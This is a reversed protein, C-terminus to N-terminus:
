GRPAPDSAPGASDRLRSKWMEYNERLRRAASYNRPSMQGEPSLITWDSMREIDYEGRQGAKLASVHFPESALTADVAGNLVRHVEFWLHEREGATANDVDYALKVIRPLNLEAFEEGLRRFVDLTKRAREAMLATAVTSFPTVIPGDSVSAAFRSPVPKSRLWRTLIGGVPDCLVARRGSHAEDPDRLRQHVEGAEAHFRDVPVFRVDGGPFALPFSATDPQIAGELAAFAAARMPDSCNAVFMSSPELVDMDFAGLEELGHTHLWRVRGPNDPDQVAHMAFLAEVDLDADHALEDDLMARSWLLTSTGDIAIAGDPEMLARLWFLLAKRDKLVQKQRSKVRVAITSQGLKASAKEADTLGLSVDVIVEPLPAPQRECVIDATGWRPHTAEVAWLQGDATKAQRTTVGARLAALSDLSPPIGGRYLVRGVAPLDRQLFSFM